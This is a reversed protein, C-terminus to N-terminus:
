EWRNPEAPIRLIVATGTPASTVSLTGGLRAARRRMDVLGFGERVGAPDFGRGDDEVRVTLATGDFALALRVSSAQAHKRANRLAERVIGLVERRAEPRLVPLHLDAPAELTVELGAQHQLETLAERLAPVLPEDDPAARLGAITERVDRYTDQVAKRAERLGPLASAVDGGM